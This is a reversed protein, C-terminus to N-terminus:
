EHHRDKPVTVVEAKKWACPFQGTLLATNVISTISPLIVSLSDKIVRAPIKDHGPVKNLPMSNIINQIDNSDVSKFTFEESVPYERPIFPAQSLDYNCQNSLLKTKELGVQGLSTFYGNFENATTKDDKSYSKQPVTRRPICSRITKWICRKNNSNGMIQETVYEQEALRIEQKM